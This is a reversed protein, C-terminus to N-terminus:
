KFIIKINHERQGEKSIIINDDNQLPDLYVKFNLLIGIITLEKIQDLIPIDKLYVFNIENILNIIKLNTIITDYEIKEEAFYFDDRIEYIKSVIYYGIMYDKVDKLNLTYEM